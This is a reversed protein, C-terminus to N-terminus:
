VEAAFMILPEEELLNQALKLVVDGPFQRIVMQTESDVVTVVTKGSDDDLLFSIERSTEQFYDNLQSVAVALNEETVDDASIDQLKMATQVMQDASLELDNKQGAPQVDMGSEVYSSSSGNNSPPNVENM